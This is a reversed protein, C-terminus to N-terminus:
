NQGRSILNTYLRIFMSLHLACISIASSLKYSIKSICVHTLCIQTELFVGDVVFPGM